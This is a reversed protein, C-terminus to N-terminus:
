RQARTRLAPTPAVTPQAAKAEAAAKSRAKARDPTLLARCRTAARASAPAAPAPM